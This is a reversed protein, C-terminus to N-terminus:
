QPGPPNLARLVDCGAVLVELADVVESPFVGIIREKHKSYLRVVVCIAVITTRVGYALGIISM